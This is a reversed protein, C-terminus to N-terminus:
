DQVCTNRVSIRLNLKANVVRVFRMCDGCPPNSVLISAQKLSAPPAIAALEHLTGGGEEPEDDGRDYTDPYGFPNEFARIEPELFVHKSIFYAILQKEAHCAHFQGPIDNDWDDLALTYGIIKAIRIVESTWDRGSVLTTTQGHSWGSMAAIFPYRGGRELWAITKYPTFIEYEAVPAYLTIRGPSKQFLLQNQIIGNAAPHLQDGADDKLISVIMKRAQNATYTVEQYVPHRERSRRYREEENRDSPAAFDIAKLSDNDMLDKNAGHELLHEVNKYRGWLAAEMLPTRGEKNQDNPDAGRELLLKVIAPHKERAALLLATKGENNVGHLFLHKEPSSDLYERVYDVNGFMVMQSNVHEIRKLELTPDGGAGRRLRRFYLDNDDIIITETADEWSPLTIASNEELIMGSFVGVLLDEKPEPPSAGLAVYRQSVKDIEYATSEPNESFPYKFSYTRSKAGTDCHSVRHISDYSQQFGHRHIKSCFPCQVHVDSSDWWQVEAFFKRPAM